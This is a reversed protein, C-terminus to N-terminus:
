FVSFGNKPIGACFELCLWEILAVTPSQVPSNGSECSILVDMKICPTLHFCPLSCLCNHVPSFRGVTSLLLNLANYQLFNHITSQAPISVTEADFFFHVCWTYFLPSSSVQLISSIQKKKKLSGRLIFMSRRM